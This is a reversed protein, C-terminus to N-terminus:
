GILADNFAYILDGIGVEIEENQPLQSKIKMPLKCISTPNVDTNKISKRM